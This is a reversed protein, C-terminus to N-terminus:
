RPAYTANWAALQQQVVPVLAPALFEIAVGDAQEDRELILDIRDLDIAAEVTARIQTFDPETSETDLTFSVTGRDVIDYALWRYEPLPILWTVILAPDDPHSPSIRVTLQLGSPQSHAFAETVREAMRNAMQQYWEVTERIADETTQMSEILLEDPLLTDDMRDQLALAHEWERKLVRSVEARLAPSTLHLQCHPTSRDHEDLYWSTVLAFPAILRKPDVTM